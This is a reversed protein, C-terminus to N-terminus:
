NRYYAYRHLPIVYETVQVQNATYEHLSRNPVGGDILISWSNMSMHVSSYAKFLVYVDSVRVIHRAGNM